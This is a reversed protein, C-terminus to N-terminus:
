HSTPHVEQLDVGARKAAAHLLGYYDLISFGEDILDHVAQEFREVQETKSKIDAM